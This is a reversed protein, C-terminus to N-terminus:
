RLEPSNDTATIPLNFLLERVYHVPPSGYSLVADHYRKLTFAKGWARQAEARLARHEQAGVFYAPLQGATLQVRVWKAAAEREQQFTDHTMLQMADERSMGDVHVAQDLIANAIARLDWKLHILNMLPDQARFGADIMTGEGYVAWGEIFTTSALIARLASPYRNAHQLQLYHGPMAEHLTLEYISRTNYERLYSQVQAASWDAPIPAVAFFTKQGRDLPGPSDCFALAVGRQFEPMTIIELPDDYLTVLEHARVFEEAESFARRATELVDNRAPQEQYALELAAAIAAQQQAPDPRAPLPPADSHGRLAQVALEYMRGRTRQLAEEAQQRIQQRSYASDLEFHLKRDYRAAGLRFEGHAAPLLKKELWIQHQAVASRAHAMATKLAVQQEPPLSASQPLVLQEIVATIGSNQQIATQAHIEPVRQPDLNQRVQGLLRPLESLRATVSLLRAQLPAFDRAMLTYISNGALETYLLPNWRWEQLEDIAWQQGQLETRLLQLDTQHARNLQTADIQASQQLLEAALQSRRHYGEASVDDLLADFRHEGVGTARVPMLALMESMYRQELRGFAAEAASAAPVEPPRLGPQRLCGAFGVILVGSFAVQLARRKSRSTRM